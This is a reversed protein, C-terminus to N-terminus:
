GGAGGTLFGSTTGGTGGSGGTGILGANGGAGGNGGPGPLGYVPDPVGPGGAGGAGGNGLLWGGAGGTGGSASAGGAGGTGGTGILGAAGGNGGAQGPAGPAGNGGNGYLWGGTAGNGGATTADAGDGILVRGTLAVSPANLVDLLSQLPNAAAAEAAAYAGSATHLSVVFQEQWGAVRAGIVQYERAYGGFLAAVAVSIEDTGAASRGGRWGRM